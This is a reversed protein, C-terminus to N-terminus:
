LGGFLIVKHSKGEHLYMCMDSSYFVQTDNFHYRQLGILPMDLGIIKKM